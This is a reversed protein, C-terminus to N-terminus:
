GAAMRPSHRNRKHGVGVRFSLQSTPAMVDALPTPIPLVGGGLGHAFFITGARDATEAATNVAVADKHAPVTRQELAAALAELDFRLFNM